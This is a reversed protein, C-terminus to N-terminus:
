NQARWYDITDQLTKEIPIESKWGTLNVFKSPDCLLEPDDSPSMLSPDQETKIEVNSLGIMMDLIDSIQYSKGSGLNYVQGDEGKELALFYAKVMDRVDTFDRKSTLNGIKMVSERGKEIDVIKKAFASIVFIPAQGPGVHNFPRVRVIKLKNTLHYMLSLYDQTIKSVAYPNTPMFPTDEDMPLDAPNVHGYIEASSIILTKTDFLELKKIAELVSIQGSINTTFTNMPDKFSERPSALAALHFVYDPRVSNIISHTKESDLLDLQHLDIQNKNQLGEISDETLYTGSVTFGQDLLHASLHKGAFGTLGTIFAKKM